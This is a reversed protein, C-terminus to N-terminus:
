NCLTNIFLVVPFFQNIAKMIDRASEFTLVVKCLTIFLVM